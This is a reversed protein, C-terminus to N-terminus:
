RPRARAHELVAPNVLFEPRRGALVDVISKLGISAM